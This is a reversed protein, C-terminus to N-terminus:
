VQADRVLQVQFAQDHTPKLPNVLDAAIKAVFAHREFVIGLEGLDLEVDGVAIIVLDHFQSLLHHGIGGLFRQTGGLDCVFSVLDVQRWGPPSPPQSVGDQLDRADIVLLVTFGVAEVLGNDLHPACWFALRVPAFQDIGGQDVIDFRVQDLGCKQVIIGQLDRGQGLPFRACSSM